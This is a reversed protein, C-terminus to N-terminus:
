KEKKYLQGKEERRVSLYADLSLWRSDIFLVLLAVASLSSDRLLYWWTIKGGTPSSSFCGCAIDLGRSLNFGLAMTFVLLLSAVILAGGPIWLGLVLCTGAIVEVWPLIIATLNVLSAPLIHYNYIALAFGAPEAIKTLGAYLFTLGLGIRAIAVLTQFVTTKALKSLARGLKSM